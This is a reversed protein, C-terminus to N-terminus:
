VQWCVPSWRWWFSRDQSSHRLGGFYCHSRCVFDPCWVRSLGPPLFDSTFPLQNHEAFCRVLVVCSSRSMTSLRLMHLTPFPKSWRGSYLAGGALRDRFRFIKTVNGSQLQASRMFSFSPSLPQNLVLHSFGGYILICFELKLSDSILEWSRSTHSQLSSNVNTVPRETSTRNDQQRQTCIWYRTYIPVSEMSSATGAPNLKSLMSRGVSIQALLWGECRDVQKLVCVNIFTVKPFM